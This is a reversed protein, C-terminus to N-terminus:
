STLLRRLEADHERPTPRGFFLRFAHAAQGLLMTLGDSVKLGAAEAREVFPTRVPVTVMDFAFGEWNQGAVPKRGVSALGEIVNEPMPPFGTMGLPSANIVADRGVMAEAADELSYVKGERNCSELFARGKALDRAIVDFVFYLQANLEGVVSRAAGGNGILCIRSDDHGIDWGGIAEGIGFGDTNFGKLKTQRFGLVGERRPVVCNIACLGPWRVEDLLPLVAVKLPMTVNCGRWHRDSRRAALYDPLEGAAVRTARYDGRLGLKELWFKHIAPSKSHEVPDGIVEAYPIGM